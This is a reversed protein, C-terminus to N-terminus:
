GAPGHRGEHEGVVRSKTYTRNQREGLLPTVPDYLGQGAGVNLDPPCQWRDYPRLARHNVRAAILDQVLEAWKM